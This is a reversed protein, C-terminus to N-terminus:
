ALATERQGVAAEALKAAGVGLADRAESEAM